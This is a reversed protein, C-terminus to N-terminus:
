SRGRARGLRPVLAGTVAAWRTWDEGYEERLLRDEWRSKIWFFALIVAAMAWSWASGVAVVFGLVALLVASYIPHRLHAYVGDTRLGAGSLPVPTPTLARGLRRGALLGLLVGAAILAVGAVVAAASPTRWPLLVLAVLLLFQVAVLLWGVVVRNV